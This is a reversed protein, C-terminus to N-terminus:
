PAVEQPRAAGCAPCDHRLRDCESHFVAECGCSRVPAGTPLDTFCLRCREGALAAREGGLARWEITIRAGNARLVAGRGVEVVALGGIVVRGDRLLPGASLVVAEGGPGRRVRLLAETSM